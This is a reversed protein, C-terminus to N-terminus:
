LSGFVCFNGKVKEICLSPLHGSMSKFDQATLVELNEFYNQGNKLM